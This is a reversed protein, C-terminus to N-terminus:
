DIEDLVSRDEILEDIQNSLFDELNIKGNVGTGLM